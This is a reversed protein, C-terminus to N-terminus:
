RLAAYVADVLSLVRRDPHKATALMHACLAVMGKTTSAVSVITDPGFPRTRAADAHGGWGDVVRAGDVYVCVSAGFDGRETFNREFAERVAAFRPDCTGEVTVM